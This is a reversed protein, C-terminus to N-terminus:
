LEIRTITGIEAIQININEEPKIIDVEVILNGNEDLYPEYIGRSLLNITSQAFENQSLIDLSIINNPNFEQRLRSLNAIPNYSVDIGDILDHRSLSILETGGLEQFFREAIYDGTTDIEPNLVIDPEAQKVGPQFTKQREWQLVVPTPPPATQVTATAGSSPFSPPFNPPFYGIDPGAVKFDPPLQVPPRDPRYLDPVQAIISGEGSVYVPSPKPAAATEKFAGPRQNQNYTAGYSM